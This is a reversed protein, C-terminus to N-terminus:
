PIPHQKLLRTVAPMCVRVLWTHPGRDIVQGKQPAM